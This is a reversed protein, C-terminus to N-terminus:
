LNRRYETPTIGLFQRFTRALHAHSSFGCMAAIDILSQRREKMLEQARNLRLQLRYRHPTYGVAAHFMRLFQSRSYGTEAALTSLDLDSQLERMRDLVRRLLYQPLKSSARKRNSQRTERLLLQVTLAHALHSSYLRGSSGGGASESELLTILRQLATDRLV